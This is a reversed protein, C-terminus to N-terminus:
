GCKEGEMAHPLHIPPQEPLKLDAVLAFESTRRTIRSTLVPSFGWSIKTLNRRDQLMWLQNWVRYFLPYQALQQYNRADSGANAGPAARPQGRGLRLPLIPRNWPLM